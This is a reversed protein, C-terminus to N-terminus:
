DSPRSRDWRVHIDTFTPGSEGRSTPSTTKGVRAWFGKDRLFKSAQKPVVGSAEYVALTATYSGGEARTRIKPAWKTKFLRRLQVQEKGDTVAKPKVPATCSNEDAIRKAEEGTLESHEVM